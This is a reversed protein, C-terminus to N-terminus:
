VWPKMGSETVKCIVIHLYIFYTSPDQITLLKNKRVLGSKRPYPNLLDLGLNYSSELFGKLSMHIVEENYSYINEHM